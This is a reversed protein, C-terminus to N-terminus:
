DRDVALGSDVLRDATWEVLVDRGASDAFVLHGFVSELEAPSSPLVQILGRGDAPIEDSGTRRIPATIPGRQEGVLPVDALATLRDTMVNPVIGDRVGSLVFLPTGRDRLRDLLHTADTRDLLMTAAGMLAYADGTRAGAPVIDMFLPWLLSHMIIDAIGAGPVQLFAGDVEPALAVFAAGLVGGMSTGQYLIRSADLGIDAVAPRDFFQPADFRMAALEGTIAGLLSLHDLIGQMPMSALRGLRGPTALDFLYGGEDAQRDGHNPVDIGITALGLAANADATVRLSEKSITLGHGYIAVPAGDPGAPRAPLAMVFTEWSGRAGNALRAVGDADRFDSVLVEGTVVAAVDGGFFWPPEVTVRRVPHEAARVAEAMADLEGTADQRSGVTFRTANVVESWRDAGDLRALDSRLQDVPRSGGLEADTLGPAQQLRDGVAPRVGRTLRAVYTRGYEYRTRPWAVVMTDLDGHRVAEAPVEARIPVREGTQADFVALVDGGDDPLTWPIVSRDVEFMVPTIASFGDAGGFADGITAGPGLQDLLEAPVLEPPMEIRRGTSSTPDAVTFEDSPYPLACSRVAGIACPRSDDAQVGASPALPLLSCGTGLVAVAATLVVAVRRVSTRARRGTRTTTLGELM